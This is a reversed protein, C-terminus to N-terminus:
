NCSLPTAPIETLEINSVFPLAGVSCANSRAVEIIQTNSSDTYDATTVFLGRDHVQRIAALNADVEDQSLAVYKESDFDYTSTVDERNWGDLSRFIKGLVDEGNQAFLFKNRRHALRALNKVLEQMGPRQRPHDAIMDVNDLFIGDFGKAIFRPMVTKAIVSRFGSKSTDAYWEGFDGWFDLRYPTVRKFWFRGQEITGISLYGLVIAGSQQLDKIQAKTAEEGDIVVLDYKKLNEFSKSLVDGGLGFAFTKSERLRSRNPTASTPFSALLFISTLLLYNVLRM